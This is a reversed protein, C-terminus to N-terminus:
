CCPVIAPPKKKHWSELRCVKKKGRLLNMKTLSLLTTKHSQGTIAAGYFLQHGKESLRVQYSLPQQKDNQHIVKDEHLM